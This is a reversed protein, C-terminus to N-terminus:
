KQARKPSYVGGFRTGHTRRLTEIRARYDERGETNYALYIPPEIGKEALQEAVAVMLAQLIFCGVWGSTPGVPAPLQDAELRADGPVTLNDLIVDAFEYLKRGSKHRSEVAETYRMSTLAIVKLGADRAAMAMEVPFANRGSTSVLLIVDGPEAGIEAFCAQGVGEAREIATTLRIPGDELSLGPTFVANVLLSGGARWFIDQVPLSSHPGGWAYFTHGAAVAEAILKAAEEIRPLQESKLQELLAFSEEFYRQALM